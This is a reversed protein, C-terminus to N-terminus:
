STKRLWALASFDTTRSSASRGFASPNRTHSAPHTIGFASPLIRAEDKM